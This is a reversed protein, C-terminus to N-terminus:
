STKAARKPPEIKGPPEYSVDGDRVRKTTFSDAPWEAVGDANFKTGGPHRIFKKVNDKLAYVKVMTAM